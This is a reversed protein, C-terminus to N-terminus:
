WPAPLRMRWGFGREVPTKAEGFFVLFVLRFIYLSTLVAGAMGLSILLVILLRTNRNM